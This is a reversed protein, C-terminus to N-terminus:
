AAQCGLKKSALHAQLSEPLRRGMAQVLAAQSRRDAAVDPVSGRRVARSQHQRGASVAELDSTM